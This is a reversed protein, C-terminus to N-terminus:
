GGGTGRQIRNGIIEVEGITLADLGDFTFGIVVDFRDLVEDLVADASIRVQSGRLFENM